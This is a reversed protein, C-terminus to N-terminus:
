ATLPGAVAGHGRRPGAGDRRPSQRFRPQHGSEPDEGWRNFDDSMLMGHAGRRVVISQTALYTTLDLRRLGLTL